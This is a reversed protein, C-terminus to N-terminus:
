MERVMEAIPRITEIGDAISVNRRKFSGVNEGRSTVDVM